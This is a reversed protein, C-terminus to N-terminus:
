LYWTCLYSIIQMDLEVYQADPTVDSDRNHMEMTLVLQHEIEWAIHDPEWLSYTKYM